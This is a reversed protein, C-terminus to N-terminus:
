SAPTQRGEPSIVVQAGTKLAEIIPESGMMAVIQSCQAVSEERLPDGFIETPVMPMVTGARIRRMLYERAVNSYIVGVDFELRQQRAIDKVIDLTIDVHPKGGSGGASGIIVPIHRRVGETIVIELDHRINAMPSHVQGTGLYWPGCDLSGADAAIADPREMDLAAIFAERHIGRNGICGTPTLVKIKDM